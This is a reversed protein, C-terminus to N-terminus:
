NLPTSSEVPKDQSPKAQTDEPQETQVAEIEKPAEEVKEVEAEEVKTPEEVVEEKQSDQVEEPQAQREVESFPPIQQGMGLRFDAMSYKVDRIKQHDKVSTIIKTLDAFTVENNIAVNTGEQLHQLVSEINSVTNSLPADNSIDTVIRNWIYKFAQFQQPTFFDSFHVAPQIHASRDILSNVAFLTAVLELSQSEPQRSSEEEHAQKEGDELGKAYGIKQGENKGQAKGENLGREYGEQDGQTKGESLGSARGEEFSSTKIGEIDVKPTEDAVPKVEPVEAKVEEKPAEEVKEEEPAPKTKLYEKVTFEIEVLSIILSKKQSIMDKIEQTPTLGDKKIKDEAQVIKQLKKFYKRYRKYIQKLFEDNAQSDQLKEFFDTHSKISM